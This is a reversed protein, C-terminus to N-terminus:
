RTARDVLLPIGTARWWRLDVMGGSMGGHDLEPRHLTEESSSYLDIGVIENFTAALTLRARDASEPVPVGALRERMAAWVHPDGRLGWQLPSTTFADALTRPAVGGLATTPQLVSEVLAGARLEALPLYGPDLVMQGFARRSPYRVLIVADWDQGTEAILPDEGLGLYVLEAGVAEGKPEARALYDLYRERGGDAQFRLLNLMVVPEEPRAAVFAEIDSLEPDIAM